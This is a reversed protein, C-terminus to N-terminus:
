NINYNILSLLMFRPSLKKWALLLVPINLILMAIGAIFTEQSTTPSFVVDYLRGLILAIGTVGTSLFQNPSLFIKVGISIVVSSFISVIIAFIFSVTKNLKIKKM